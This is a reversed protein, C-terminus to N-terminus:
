PSKLGISESLELTINRGTQEPEEKVPITEDESQVTKDEMSVASTAVGIGIVIVIIIAVIIIKNVFNNNFELRYVHSFM